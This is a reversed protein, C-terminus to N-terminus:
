DECELYGEYLEEAELESPEKGLFYCDAYYAQFFLMAGGSVTKLGCGEAIRLFESVKPVYILDVAVSAGAFAKQSVPSIGETNHMGVGTANVLIDFGGQEPNEVANVGLQECTELLEERRRQYMSVKAGSNKMAVACSRGAGGAGLVM